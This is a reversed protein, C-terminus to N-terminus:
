AAMIAPRCAQERIKRIGLKEGVRSLLDFWGAPSLDEGGSVEGPLMLAKEPSAILVPKAAGLTM